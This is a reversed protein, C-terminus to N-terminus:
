TGSVVSLTNNRMFVESKFGVTAIGTDGASASKLEFNVVVGTFNSIQNGAVTDQPTGSPDYKDLYQFVKPLGTARDMPGVIGKLINQPPNARLQLSSPNGPFGSVQLMFEGTKDPDRVVQYVVTDM